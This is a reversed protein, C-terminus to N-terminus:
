WSTANDTAEVAGEPLPCTWTPGATQGTFPCTSPPPPPRLRFELLLLESAAKQRSPPLGPYGVLLFLIRYNLLWVSDLLTLMRPFEDDKGPAWYLVALTSPVSLM